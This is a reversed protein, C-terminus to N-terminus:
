SENKLVIGLYTLELENILKGFDRKGRINM